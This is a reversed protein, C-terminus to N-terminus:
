SSSARPPARSTRPRDWDRARRTRARPRHAPPRVVRAFLRGDVGAPQQRREDGLQRRRAGGTDGGGGGTQRAVREVRLRKGELRRVGSRRGDRSGSQHRKGRKGCCGLRRMGGASPFRPEIERELAIGRARHERGPLVDTRQAHLLREVGLTRLDALRDDHMRRAPDDAAIRERDPDVDAGERMRLERRRARRLPIAGRPRARPGDRRQADTGARQEFPQRLLRHQEVARARRDREGDLERALRPEDAPVHGAEPARRRALAVSGSFRRWDISIERSPASRNQSRAAISPPLRSSWDPAIRM